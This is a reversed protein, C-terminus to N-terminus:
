ASVTEQQATAALQKALYKTLWEQLGEPTIKGDETVAILPNKGARVRATTYNYMMQAPITKDLGAEALAANVVKAAAYPTM